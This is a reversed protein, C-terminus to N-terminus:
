TGHLAEEIRSILEPNDLRSKAEQLFTRAKDAKEPMDAELCNLAYQVRKELDIDSRTSAKAPVKSDRLKGILKSVIPGGM